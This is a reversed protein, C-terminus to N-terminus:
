LPRELPCSHPQTDEIETRSPCGCRSALIVPRAFGAVRLLVMFLNNLYAAMLSQMDRHFYNYIIKM